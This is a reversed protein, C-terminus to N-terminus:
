LCNESCKNHHQALKRIEIFKPKKRRCSEVVQKIFASGLTKFKKKVVALRFLILMQLYEDASAAKYHKLNRNLGLAQQLLSIHMNQINRERGRPSNDSM